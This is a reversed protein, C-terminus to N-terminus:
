LEDKFINKAKEKDEALKEHPLIEEPEEKKFDTDLVANIKELIKDTLEKRGKLVNNLYTDSLDINAALWDFRLGKQIVYDHIETCLTKDQGMIMTSIYTPFSYNEL